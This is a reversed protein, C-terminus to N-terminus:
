TKSGGCRCLNLLWTLYQSKEIGWLTGEIAFSRSICTVRVVVRDYNLPKINQFAFIIRVIM